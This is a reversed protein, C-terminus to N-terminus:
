DNATLMAIAFGLGACSGVILKKREDAPRAKLMKAHLVGLCSGMAALLLGEGIPLGDTSSSELVSSFFGMNVTISIVIASICALLLMAGHDLRKWKLCLFCTIVFAVMACAFDYAM